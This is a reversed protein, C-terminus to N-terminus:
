PEDRLAALLAPAVERCRSLHEEATYGASSTIIGPTAHLARALREPTLAQAVAEREIALIRRAVHRVYEPSQLETLATPLSAILDRGAQTTPESM